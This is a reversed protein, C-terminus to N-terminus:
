HRRSAEIRFGRQRLYISSAFGWLRGRGGKHPFSDATACAASSQLHSTSRSCGGEAAASAKSARENGDNLLRLGEHYNQVGFAMRARRVLDNLDDVEIKLGQATGIRGRVLSVLTDTIGALAATAKDRTAVIEAVQGGGLYANLERHLAELATVNAGLPSTTIAASALRRLPPTRAM